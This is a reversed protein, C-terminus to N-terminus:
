ALRNGVPQAALAKRVKLLQLVFRNLHRHINYGTPVQIAFLEHLLQMMTRSFMATLEDEHFRAGGLIGREQWSRLMQELEALVFHMYQLLSIRLKYWVLQGYNYGWTAYTEHWAHSNPMNAPMSLGHQRRLEWDVQLGEFDRYYFRDLARLDPSLALMLDQGHAELILGHRLTMELWLRAFKACLVQEIFERPQLRAREMLTLFLPRVHQGGMLAFLPAVSWQNEKIQRPISRVIVGGDPMQRPAFGFAEPFFGLGRPLDDLSEQVLSSLGVSRAIKCTHLRRDGFIPSQLSLKVFLAREPQRDPWALFTRTSSTPVGWIRLGDSAADRAALKKLLEHYHAICAPHIPFLVEAEPGEGSFFSLEDSVRAQTGFVYLHRREIWYCPLPVAGCNQPFYKPDFSPDRSRNQFLEPKHLHFREFTLQQRLWCPLQELVEVDALEEELM